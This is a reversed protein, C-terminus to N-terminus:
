NEQNKTIILLHRDCEAFKNFILCHDDTLEDIFGDSKWSEIFKKKPYDAKKPHPKKPKGPIVAKTRLIYEFPGNATNEVNREEHAFETKVVWENEELMNISLEDLDRLSRKFDTFRYTYPLPKSCFCDVQGKKHKDHETLFPSISEIFENLKFTNLEHVKKKLKKWGSSKFTKGSMAKHLPMTDMKDKPAM